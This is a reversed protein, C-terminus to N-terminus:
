NALSALLHQLQDIDAPKVIHHDIGAERAKRRDDEQGWGTVAVITPHRDPHRARLRRAVEYGDMGPLGIDLLVVSSNGAGFADIASHGDHALTVEAGLMQLVMGLSEASDRNDDVVLVRMPAALALPRPPTAHSTPAAALPLRVIFEAGHGEGRSRAEITGGHMEALRRSLTLGIGLGGQAQAGGRGERVFMEFIRSLGDTAIGIGNDRVSILVGDGDRRASLKILGGDPTYKAANNLLNSLIQALRVPDGELWLAEGPLSVDLRHRGAQVVPESTEVANRVVSSLEIRESKLDLWGSTIRSMELLDDVLRVLNNLQRQMIERAPAVAAPDGGQYRMVHLANRMPALPNRLEHSLTALFETKRRDAESLAAHSDEIAKRAQLQAQIDRFYCVVGHRGDPLPIRDTRWEYSEVVGRDLRQESRETSMYPEGSDLTHRFIAIVEDAFAKPWILRLVEGFDRGIVGGPIDGFVPLAVPNVERIRFDADVLYVGLPAHDLPAKVQASSLRLAELARRRIDDAQRLAAVRGLLERASFPKVLYDDAGRHLGELRAEEGARASLVLVPVTRLEPDNRLERILGFGDLRPMMVDAVIVDHRRARAAELAAVGDAVVEVEYQESLLRRVYDRLDANDDAVLVRGASQTPVTAAPLSPADPLWGLVEAVYSEARTAPGAQAPAASVLRERPLHAHGAPIEVVFTSGQHVESTVQISGGHLKVLEHVLALGIGSGEHSRGRAGEIRHFREFVRELSDGPIGIGTDAVTLRLHQEDGSMTVTIAGHLTFKFANSLLNLVIKEWMERDVWGHAPADCRVHLALRAKDCAARFNSALDATLAALDTLRYAAQARGAEIRAFDLLVNVLKLLRQGNRHVVGLLERDHGSGRALLEEIPGLMLTLPTRFEHSVNSFFATKARDLEALSEARRRESEYAQANAIATSVQGAVLDLFSQYADDFPRRSNLGVVLKGVTAGPAGLALERVQDPRAASLAEQAGPTCAQLEGGLHVLAFPVDDARAALTAMAHVCAEQANRAAVQQSALDKLLGLRREGVVRGTTETVICLVGGVCGSEDRVPDYSVDFYTEEVFGYRELSFLLDKAWFAEGTRVVGDLLAHLQSDWIESWAGRGPLGLAHPHKAGFVPRYADNYFVVYEPGWFLIIQAKSPLLMSVASRLSQPWVTIPGVPTCSWDIARMRAGMEGGGALYELAFAANDSNTV